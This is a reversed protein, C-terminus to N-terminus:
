TVHFCNEPAYAGPFLFSSNEHVVDPNIIKVLYIQQTGLGAMERGRGCPEIVTVIGIVPHFVPSYYPDTM